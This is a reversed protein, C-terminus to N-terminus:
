GNSAPRQGIEVTVTMQQSGRQLVVTVHDGPSTDSVASSLDDASKV